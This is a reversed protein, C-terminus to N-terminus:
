DTAGVVASMAELGVLAAATSGVLTLELIAAKDMGEARLADVDEDIIRNAYRALKEVFPDLAPSLPAPTPTDTWWARVAAAVEARRAPTTSGATTLLHDWGLAVEAPRLVGDTGRGWPPDMHAGKVHLGMTDLVAALRGTGKDDPLQFDLADAV